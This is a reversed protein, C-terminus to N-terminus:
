VAKKRIRIVMNKGCFAPKRWCTNTQRRKKAYLAKQLCTVLIEYAM